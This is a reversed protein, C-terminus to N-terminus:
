NFLFRIVYKNIDVLWYLENLCVTKAFSNFLTILLKIIWIFKLIFAYIAFKHMKVLKWDKSYISKIMKYNIINCSFLTDVDTTISICTICTLETIYENFLFYKHVFRYINFSISSCCNILNTRRLISNESEILQHKLLFIRDIGCHM